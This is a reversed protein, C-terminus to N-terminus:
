GMLYEFARLEIWEEVLLSEDLAHARIAGEVASWTSLGHQASFRLLLQACRDRYEAKTMSPDNFEALLEDVTGSAM